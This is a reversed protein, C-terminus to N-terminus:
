PHINVQFINRGIRSHSSLRALTSASLCESYHWKSKWGSLKRLLTHEPSVESFSTSRFVLVYQIESELNFVKSIRNRMMLLTSTTLNCGSTFWPSFYVVSHNGSNHPYLQIIRTSPTKKQLPCNDKDELRALDFYPVLKSAKNQCCIDRLCHIYLLLITTLM